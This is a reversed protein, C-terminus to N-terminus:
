YGVSEGPRSVAPDPVQGFSIRVADLTALAAATDNMDALLGWLNYHTRLDKPALQIARQAADLAAQCQGAHYVAQSQIMWASASNPDIELLTQAVAKARAVQNSAITKGTALVLADEADRKAASLAHYGPMLRLGAVANKFLEVYDTSTYTWHVYAAAKYVVKFRDLWAKRDAESVGTWDLHRYVSGSLVAELFRRSARLGAAQDQECFEIVPMVDSNTAYSSIARRLDNQDAVYCSLVDLSDGIHVDQLSRIVEPKQMEDMVHRISVQQPRMSGVIMYFPAPETVMYWLTVHPFVEMVTGIVSDMAPAAETSYTDLWSIFLGQDNLHDRASEFYERTFLSANEAVGRMSTCDSVIADYRDDTLHLYNRADMFILHVRERHQAGLNLQPFYHLAFDVVEPAIEVCDVRPLGHRTLCATSEGSGFGVSLVAQAKPNLFVPFHGLMKQDARYGASTGAVRRGSTCLYMVDREADQHVSLTTNLGEKMAVVQCGPTQRCLAVIRTFLDKPISPVELSVLVAGLVLVGRRLWTQRQPKLFYAWMLAGFWLTVLGMVTVARQLGLGPILVFGTILGGCVAGLTNTGYATGVSWGIRHAHDVWAQLMVPFGFGMIVSPVAFLILCQVLPHLMRWPVIRALWTEKMSELVQPLLHTSAVQLWPLYLVGCLGLLFLVVGFAAGRNSLNQVMRSGFSTGIVNGVLYVTLVASFVYTFAGVSHVVSRMWLLEYGISVLGSLFFATALIAFAGSWVRQTAPRPGPPSIPRGELRHLLYGGLAVILNLLAAVRLTGPVGVWRILLFGAAFCGAAAGLMNLAYLRGVLRGAKEQVNTVVGALLPLTSGMLFTPVLLIAASLCIQGAILWGPGPEVTRCFWLYVRDAWHLTWPSVLATVTIVMEIIAYLRLPFRIRDSFRGMVMAGLALGAMFVSVVVSSAYVTNGLILKLLRFWVVEDILACIGSLVYILLLFSVV